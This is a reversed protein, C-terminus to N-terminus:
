RLLLDGDLNQTYEMKLVRCQVTWNWGGRERYRHTDITYISQTHTHKHAYASIEFHVHQGKRSKGRKTDHIRLRQRDRDCVPVGRFHITRHSAIAHHQRSSPEDVIWMWCNSFLSRLIGFSYKATIYHCDNGEKGWEYM